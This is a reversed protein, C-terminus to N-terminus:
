PKPPILAHLRAGGDASILILEELFQLMEIAARLMAAPLRRALSCPCCNNGDFLATFLSTAASIQHNFTKKVADSFGMRFTLDVPEDKDLAVEGSRQVALRTM